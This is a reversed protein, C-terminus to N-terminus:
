REDTCGFTQGDFGGETDQFLNISIVLQYENIVICPQRHHVARDVNRLLSSVLLDKRKGLLVMKNARYSRRIGM